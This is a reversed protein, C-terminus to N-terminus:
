YCILASLLGAVIRWTLLEDGKATAFNADLVHVFYITSICSFTIWPLLTRWIIKRQYVVWYEHTLSSLLDTQYLKDRKYNRLVSVFDLFGTGGRMLWRIDM